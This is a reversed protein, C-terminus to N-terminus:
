QELEISTIAERLLDRDVGFVRRELDVELGPDRMVLTVGPEIADYQYTAGDLRELDLVVVNLRVQPAIIGDEIATIGAGWLMAEGSGRMIKDAMIDSNVCQLADVYFVTGDDLATIEIDVEPSEGDIEYFNVLQPEVGLHYWTKIAETRLIVQDGFEDTGPPYIEDASSKHILRFSIRGSEVYIWSQWSLHPRQGTPSHGIPDASQAGQVADRRFGDGATACTVKICADGYHVYPSPATIDSFVAGGIEVYFPWTSGNEIFPDNLLNTAGPIDQRDLIFPRVGYVTVASPVPIYPLDDGNANSCLYGVTGASPNPDGGKDVTINVMYDYTGNVASDTIQWVRWASNTYDYFKLYLGNFQDDEFIAKPWVGSVGGSFDGYYLLMTTVTSNLLWRARAVSPSEGQQGEGRPYIWTGMESSDESVDASLLNKRFVILPKEATSNRETLIDIKYDTTGNRRVVLDGSSLLAAEDLASLYTEWDLVHDLLTVPEITGKTFNSPWGDTAILADVFDDVTLKALEHHLYNDGNAQGFAVLPANTQLDFRISRAVVRLVRSNTISRERVIERVRYEDWGDDSYVTRLVRGHDITSTSTHFPDLQLELEELGTLELRESASM